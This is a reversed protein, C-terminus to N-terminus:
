CARTTIWSTWPTSSTWTASCLPSPLSALPSPPPPVTPLPQVIACVCRCHRVRWCCPCSARLMGASQGDCLGSGAGAPRVEKALVLAAEMLVPLTHGVAAAAAGGAKEKKGGKKKGGAGAPAGEADAAGAGAGAEASAPKAADAAASAGAGAAAVAAGPVNYYSYVARLEKHKEHGIISSPLHYFSVFDTVSCGSAPHVAAPGAPEPLGLGAARVREEALATAADVVFSDIVGARPLLWHAVEEESLVPRMAFSSLYANLLRAVAPVDSDRMVRMGAIPCAQLRPPCLPRARYPLLLSLSPQLCTSFPCANFISSFLPRSDRVTAASPSM